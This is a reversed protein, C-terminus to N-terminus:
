FNYNSKYLMGCLFLSVGRVLIKAVFFFLLINLPQQCLCFSFCNDLCRLFLKNFIYIFVKAICYYLLLSIFLWYIPLNWYHRAIFWYPCSFLLFFATFVYQALAIITVLQNHLRVFSCCNIITKIFEYM